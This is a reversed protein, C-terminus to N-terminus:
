IRTRAFVTKKENKVLKQIHQHTYVICHLAINEASIEMLFYNKFNLPVVLKLYASKGITSFKENTSHKSKAMDVNRRENNLEANIENYYRYNKKWKKRHANQEIM